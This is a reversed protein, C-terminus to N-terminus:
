SSVALSPQAAAPTAGAPAPLPEGNVIARFLRALRAAERRVDHMLAVRAAGQKGMEELRDLPTQLADRLAAVLADVSGAPVLWGNIGPQVLEPIGAVYTTVVPRGLALAEMIVVPLGEAFSPLVMVRSDLLEQRVQANSLWGTIRVHNQLGLRDLNKEIVSRMPGDGALTMRFSVGDAALRALAELILLQGKQEALRGVCVMQSTDAIPQAGGELFAADVGCRVVQVKPWDPYHCWRYLQSRGFDSIAVVMAAHEIKTGLSLEEPHDFEEPGHVTFSYTPGGLVRALMAVAASNTGFHAHLHKAGCDQLRRALLCAEALYVLHRLVGRESRRGLRITKRMAQLWCLPRQLAMGLTATFLGVLGAALLVHTRRAEAQDAPDVLDSPSPRVSFREVAIGLAELAAIERRIFSHSVHPYQNVLYAVKMTDNGSGSAHKFEILTSQRSLLRNCHYRLQGWAHAFKGIVIFFAYSRAEAPRDGSRRRHRFIRYGLLPYLLFLLLSLGGTFYAGVLAVLPVILGWIWNSRCERQWIRIPDNRHLWSVEAFAHGARVARKWFQGFRTMAADHLTMEADVRLIKWGALRLRVCMEPEEGAILSSRYGGIQILPAVRILADGGCAEAEGIPTNWEMDCLRNYVSAEPFRERRRGCVVAVEARAQLHREATELWGPQIECDGDIFQVLEIEPDVQRLRALGENRARAASFPISMDLEVVEVGKSRALAVSGDTSHSDVYVITSARGAVSELCRRLREGENRGIAVVGLRAV